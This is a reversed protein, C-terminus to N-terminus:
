YDRKEWTGDAQDVYIVAHGARHMCHCRRIGHFAEWGMDQGCCTTVPKDAGPESDAHWEALMKHLQDACYRFTETAVPENARSPHRGLSIFKVSLKRVRTPLDDGQQIPETIM